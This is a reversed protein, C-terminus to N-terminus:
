PAKLTITGGGGDSAQFKGRIQFDEIIDASVVITGWEHTELWKLKKGTLSGQLPCENPGSGAIAGSKDFYLKFSVPRSSAGEQVKGKWFGGPLSPHPVGTVALQQINTGRPSPMPSGRPSPQPSRSAALRQQDIAGLTSLGPNARPSPRPSARPSGGPIGLALGGKSPTSPGSVAVDRHGTSLAGANYCMLCLELHHGGDKEKKKADRCRLCFYFPVTEYRDLIYSKCINCNIKKQLNVVSVDGWDHRVGDGLPNYVKEKKSVVKRDSEDFPYAENISHVLRLDTDSCNARHWKINKPDDKGHFPKRECKDGHGNGHACRGCCHTKHWTIQFGCNSPCPNGAASAAGAGGEEQPSVQRDPKDAKYKGGKGGGGGGGGASAGCGM